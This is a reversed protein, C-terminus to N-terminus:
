FNFYNLTLLVFQLFAPHVVKLINPHQLREMLTMEKIIKFSALKYCEATTAYKKVCNEMDHGGFDVSKLAVAFSGNLNAKYVAKTYGSGLYRVHTVNEISGCGLVPDRPFDRHPQTAISVAPAPQSQDIRYRRVDTGKFLEREGRRELDMLRRRELAGTSVWHARRDRYRSVEDMRERIQRQIESLRGVTAPPVSPLEDTIMLRAPANGEPQKERQVREGHLEFGPIFLLNMVTGLFFSLCFGAAVVMKRRKM